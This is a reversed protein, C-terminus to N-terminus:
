EAFPRSLWVGYSLVRSVPQYVEPALVGRCYRNVSGAPVYVTDEPWVSHHFTPLPLARFMCVETEHVSVSPWATVTGTPLTANGM